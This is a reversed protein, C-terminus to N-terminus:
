FFLLLCNLNFFAGRQFRRSKGLCCVFGCELHFLASSGQSLTEKRWGEEKNKEVDEEKIRGGEGWEGEMEKGETKEWEESVQDSLDDLRELTNDTLWVLISWSSKVLQRKNKLRLRLRVIHQLYVKSVDLLHHKKKNWWKWIQPMLTCNCFYLAEMTSIPLYAARKQVQQADRLLNAYDWPVAHGPNCSSFFKHM